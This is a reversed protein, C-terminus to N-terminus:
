IRSGCILPRKGSFTNDPSLHIHTNAAAPNDVILCYSNHLVVQSKTVHCSYSCIFVNRNSELQLDICKFPLLSFMNVGCMNQTHTRSFSFLILLFLCVTLITPTVFGWCIRWFRNPQFGIMMEIDECFRQLGACVSLFSFRFSM